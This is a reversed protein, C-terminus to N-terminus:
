TSGPPRPKSASPMTIRGDARHVPAAAHPCDHLHIALNRGPYPRQQPLMRTVDAAITTALIWGAGILGAALWHEWGRPNFADKQGFGAIPLLLDPIYLLPNFEPPQGRDLSAPNHTAFAATCIILPARLRPAGQATNTARSAAWGASSAWRPPSTATRGLLGTRRSGSGDRAASSQHL